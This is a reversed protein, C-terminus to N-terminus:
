ISSRDLQTSAREAGYFSKVAREYASAAAEPSVGEIPIPHVNIRPDSRV